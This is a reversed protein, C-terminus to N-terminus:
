LIKSLLAFFLFVYFILSNLLKVMSRNILCLKFLQLFLFSFFLKITLLNMILKSLLVNKNFM